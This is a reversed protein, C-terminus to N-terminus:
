QSIGTMAPRPASSNSRARAPVLPRRRLRRPQLGHRYLRVDYQPQFQRRCHRQRSGNGSYRRVAKENRPGDLLGYHRADAGGETMFGDRANVCNLMDMTLDLQEPGPKGRSMDLKLGRQKYGDYVAQLAELRAALREKSMTRLEEM